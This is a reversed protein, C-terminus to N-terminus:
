REKHRIGHEMVYRIAAIERVSSCHTSRPTYRYAHYMISVLGATSSNYRYTNISSNRYRYHGRFDAVELMVEDPDEEETPSGCHLHPHNRAASKTPDFVKICRLCVIHQKHHQRFFANVAAAPGEADSDGM